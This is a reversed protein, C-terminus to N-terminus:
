CIQLLLPIGPALSLAKESDGTDDQLIANDDEAEGMTESGRGPNEAESLIVAEGSSKSFARRGIGM